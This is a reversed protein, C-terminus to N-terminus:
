PLWAVHALNYIVSQSNRMKGMNEAAQAGLALSM